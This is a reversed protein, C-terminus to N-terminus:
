DKKKPASELLDIKRLRQLHRPDGSFPTSLWVEAIEVAYEPAIFRSGLCLINSDNHERSLRAAIPNEVLAARIGRFRNAAICMGIGSGCILVGRTAKGQLIQQALLEAFDSYDVRSDDEPGLDIWSWKSLGKKTASKLALKLAFGAHDSAILIHQDSTM